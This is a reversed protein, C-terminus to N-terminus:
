TPLAHTHLIESQEDLHKYRQPIVAQPATISITQLERTEDSPKNV